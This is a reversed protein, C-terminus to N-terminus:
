IKFKQIIENLKQALEAQNQATKALQEMGYATDNINNQIEKTNMFSEQSNQAMSEIGSSVQNVAATIQRTMSALDNSMDSVYQSDNYYQEGTYLYSDFQRNVNENIFKLLDNGNVSLNKFAEQVKVITTQITSVTEASQEALNRVEEAVVAFGKGQEGARAAEIAANLALLNTQEAIGAIAEAMSKIEGVVKGAEIAELIREEKEKYISRSENIANHASEQITIAKDKSQISTTSGDAAKNSLKTVNSEIKKVSDSIEKTSTNTETSTRLINETSTTISEFKAALEETTASLEESSASMDQSNEMIIHILNKVNEQATNLASATQGFEDKRLVNISARFDYQALREALQKIKLLPSTIRKSIVLSLLLALLECLIAIILIILKLSQISSLCVSKNATIALCWNIGEVPAYAIFNSVDNLKYEGFGSEGSIMKKEYKSLESYRSDKEATKIANFESEVYKIDKHLLVTGQKNIIYPYASNSFKAQQLFTNIKKADVTGILAGVIKGDNNKIPTYIDIILSNNAQSKKADSFGSEGNLAGKVYDVSSVNLINDDLSTHATGDPKVVSMKEFGLKNSEAILKQKQITWDMSKIEVDVSTDQLTLLKNSMYNSILKSVDDAREALNTKVTQSLANSSIYSSAYSVACCVIAVLLFIQLTLIVQVKKTAKNLKYM